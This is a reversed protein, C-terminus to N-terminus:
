VYEKYIIVIIQIFKQITGNKESLGAVKYTSLSTDYQGNLRFATDSEREPCTKMLAKVSRIGM